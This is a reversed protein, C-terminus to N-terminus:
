SLTQDLTLINMLRGMKLLTMPYLANFWIGLIDAAAM